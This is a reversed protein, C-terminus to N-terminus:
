QHVGNDTVDFTCVFPEGYDVSRALSAIAKREAGFSVLVDTVRELSDKDGVWVLCDPMDKAQAWGAGLLPLAALAHSENAFRLGILASYSGWFRHRLRGDCRIM